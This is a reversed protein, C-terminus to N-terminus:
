LIEFVNPFGTRRKAGKSRPWRPSSFRILGEVLEPVVTKVARLEKVSPHTISQGHSLCYRYRALKLDRYLQTRSNVDCKLSKRISAILYQLYRITFLYAVCGLEMVEGIVDDPCLCPKFCVMDTLGNSPDDTREIGLFLDMGKAGSGQAQVHPREGVVFRFLRNPNREFISTNGQRQRNTVILESQKLTLRGGTRHQALAPISVIVKLNLNIDGSLGGVFCRFFHNPHIYPSTINGMCTSTHSPTPFLNLFHSVMKCLDTCGNLGFAGSSGFLEKLPERPLFSSKLGIDIVGDATSQDICSLAKFSANRKLVQSPNPFSSVLLGSPLRLAPIRVVPCEVLQTLERCVFSQYRTNLHQKNLRSAGALSAVLAQMDVRLLPSRVPTALVIATPMTAPM